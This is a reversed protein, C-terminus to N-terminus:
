DKYGLAEVIRWRDPIVVPDQYDVMTPKPIPSVSNPEGRPPAQRRAERGGGGEFRPDRAPTDNSPANPAAAEGEVPCPVEVYGPRQRKVIRGTDDKYCTEANVATGALVGAVAIALISLPRSSGASSSHEPETMEPWKKM